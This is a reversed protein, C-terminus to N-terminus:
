SRHEFWIAVVRGQLALREPLGRIVVRRNGFEVLAAQLKERMGDAVIANAHSQITVLVRRLLVMQLIAARADLVDLSGCCGVDWSKPLEADNGAHLRQMRIWIGIREVHPCAIDAGIASRASPGPFADRVISTMQCEPAIPWHHRQIRPLANLSRYRPLSRLARRLGSEDGFLPQRHRLGNVAVRKTGGKRSAALFGFTRQFHALEGVQNDNRLVNKVDIRMLNSRGFHDGGDNATSQDILGIGLLRLPSSFDRSAERSKRRKARTRRKRSSLLSRSGERKPLSNPHTRPAHSQAFGDSCFRQKM